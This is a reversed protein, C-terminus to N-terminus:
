NDITILRKYGSLVGCINSKILSSSNDKILVLWHVPIAKFILSFTFRIFSNKKQTKYNFLVMGRWHHFETLHNRRHGDTSGHAKHWVIMKPNYVIRYRSEQIRYNWETEEFDFFFDEDYSGLENIMESSVLVCVDDMFKFDEIKDYQGNDYEGSGRNPGKLGNKREIRGGAYQFVKESGMQYVKGGMYGVNSESQFLRVGESLVERDLVVDNNSIMIYKYGKSLAYQIGINFGKAYGLNKSNRIIHVEPYKKTVFECSKDRSGNDIMIVDYNPYNLQLVSPIFYLLHKLGNWNLTLIAVKPKISM